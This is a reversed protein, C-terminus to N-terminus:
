YDNNSRSACILRTCLSTCFKIHNKQHFKVSTKKNDFKISCGAAPKLLLVFKISGVYSFIAKTTTTSRLQSFSLTGTLKGAGGHHIFGRHSVRTLSGRIRPNVANNRLRNILSQGTGSSTEMLAISVFISQLLKSRM